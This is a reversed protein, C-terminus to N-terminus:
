DFAGRSCYHAFIIIVSLDYFVGLKGDNTVYHAVIALFPHQNPSTWADLSLSVKSELEQFANLLRWGVLLSSLVEFMQRTGAVTDQGMKMIRSRIATRGPINFNLTSGHHTHEM